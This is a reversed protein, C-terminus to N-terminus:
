PSRTTPSRMSREAPTPASRSAAPDDGAPLGACVDAAADARGAGLAAARAGRAGGAGGSVAPAPRLRLRRGHLAVHRARGGAEHRVRRLSVEAREARGPDQRLGHAQRGGRLDGDLCLAGDPQSARDPRLIRGRPARRGRGAGPRAQRAAEAARVRGGDPQDAGEGSRGRRAARYCTRSTRSGRRIGGPGAVGCLARDGVDRRRGARDAPRQVHDQRRVAAPVALRGAGRRGQLGRRQGGDASPERADARDLVGKVRM